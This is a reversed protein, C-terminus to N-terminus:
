RSFRQLEKKHIQHQSSALELEFKIKKDKLLDDDYPINESM